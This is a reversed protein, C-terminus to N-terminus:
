TRPSAPRLEAELGYSTANGTNTEFDFGSSGLTVDQQINKWKLVFASVNFTVRSDWLSSKSGVEYNWLSDPTSRSRRCAPCAWTTRHGERGAANDPM